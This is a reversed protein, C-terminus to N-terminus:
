VADSPTACRGRRRAPARQRRMADRPTSSPQTRQTRLQAADRARGTGRRACAPTAPTRFLCRWPQTRWAVGPAAGAPRCPTPAQALRPKSYEIRLLDPTLSTLLPPPLGRATSPAGSPSSHPCLSIMNLNSFYAILINPM